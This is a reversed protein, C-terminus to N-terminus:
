FIANCYNTHIVDLCCEVKHCATNSIIMMIVDRRRISLSDPPNIFKFCYGTQQVPLFLDHKNWSFVLGKM